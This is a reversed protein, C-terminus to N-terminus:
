KNKLLESASGTLDMCMLAADNIFGDSISEGGEFRKLLPLYLLRAMSNIWESNYLNSTINFKEPFFKQNFILQGFVVAMPEELIRYKRINISEPCKKIFSKTIQKKQDLDQNSSISHVIEHAVVDSADSHGHLVPNYRMILNSGSPSAQTRNLPPWWVYLVRYKLPRKVNYFKAVQFFYDQIGQQSLTKNVKEIGIKFGQESETILKVYRSEFNKYFDILFLLEEETILSKLKNFSEELSNSTHFAEALPDASASGITSFLGNRNKMPDRPKQDPDNYYKARLNSYTEFFAEDKKNIGFRKLWYSKYGDETFGEWWGSVNDMIEFIDASASYVIQIELTSDSFSDHSSSVSFNILLLLIYGCHSKM